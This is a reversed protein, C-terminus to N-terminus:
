LDLILKRCCLNHLVKHRFRLEYYKNPDQLPDEIGGRLWTISNEVYFIDNPDDWKIVYEHFHAGEISDYITISSVSGDILQM